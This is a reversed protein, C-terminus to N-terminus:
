ESMRVCVLASERMKERDRVNMCACVCVCVCLWAPTSSCLGAWGLGTIVSIVCLGAWGPSSASGLGAWRRRRRRQAWGHVGRRRSGLSPASEEKERERMVVGMGMGIKSPLNKIQNKTKIIIFNQTQIQISLM